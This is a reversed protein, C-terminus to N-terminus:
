DVNLRVAVTQGPYFTQAQDPDRVLIVPVGWEVTRQSRRLEIPREVMSSGVKAVRALQAQSGTNRHSVQASEGLELLPATTEDVYVVINAAGRHTIRVVPAGASVADGARHRIETVTGAVPSRLIRASQRSQVSLLRSEEAAMRQELPLLQASSEADNGPRGILASDLRERAQAVLLEVQEIELNLAEYRGITQQLEADALAGAAVMRQQREVVLQARSQLFRNVERQLTLGLVALRAELLDLRDANSRQASARAANLAVQLRALESQAAELDSEIQADDMVAVVQGVTVEDLLAVQVDQVRGNNLPAMAVVESQVLGLADVRHNQRLVLMAVAAIAALWVVLPLMRQRILRMRVSPSTKVTIGNSGGM